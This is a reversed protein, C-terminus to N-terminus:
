KDLPGRLSTCYDVSKHSGTAAAGPDGAGPRSAPCDPMAVRILTEQCTPQSLRLRRRKCWRCPKGQRGYVQVTPYRPTAQLLIECRVARDCRRGNQHDTGLSRVRGPALRTGSRVAFTAGIQRGDCIAKVLRRQYLHFKRGIHWFVRSGPSGHCISAGRHLVLGQIQATATMLSWIHDHFEALHRCCSALSGSPDDFGRTNWQLPLSESSYSAEVVHELRAPRGVKAAEPARRARNPIPRGRCTVRCNLAHKTVHLIRMANPVGKCRHGEPIMFLFGPLFQIPYASFRNSKRPDRAQM